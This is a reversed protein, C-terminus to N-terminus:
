GFSSLEMFVLSFGNAFISYVNLIHESRKNCSGQGFGLKLANKFLGITTKAKAKQFIGNKFKDQIAQFYGQQM